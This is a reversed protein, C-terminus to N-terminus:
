GLSGQQWIQNMYVMRNLMEATISGISGSFISGILKKAIMGTVDNRNMQLGLLIM